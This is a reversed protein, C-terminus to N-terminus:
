SHPVVKNYSTCVWDIWLVGLSVDERGLEADPIHRAAVAAQIGPAVTGGNCRRYATKALRFVQSIGPFDTPFWSILPFGM